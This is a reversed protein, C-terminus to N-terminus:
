SRESWAARVVALEHDEATGSVIVEVTPPATTVVVYLNERPNLIFQHKCSPPPPGRTKTTDKMGIINLSLEHNARVGRTFYMDGATPGALLFQRVEVPARIRGQCAVVFPFKSNNDTHRRHVREGYHPLRRLTPVDGSSSSGPRTRNVRRGGISPSVVHAALELHFGM